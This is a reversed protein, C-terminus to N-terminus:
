SKIGDAVREDVRNAFEVIAAVVPRLSPKVRDVAARRLREAELGSEVAAIQAAEPVGSDVNIPQAYGAEVAKVRDMDAKIQDLFDLHETSEVRRLAPSVMGFVAGADTLTGNLNVKFPVRLEDASYSALGNHEIAPWGANATMRTFLCPTRVGEQARDAPNPLSISVFDRPGQGTGIVQNYRTIWEQSAPVLKMLVSSNEVFQGYDGFKTTPVVPTRGTLGGEPTFWLRAQQVSSMPKNLALEADFAKTYRDKIKDGEIADIYAQRNARILAKADITIPADIFGHWKGGRSIVTQIRHNAGGSRLGLGVAGASLGGLHNFYQPHLPDGSSEFSVDNTHRIAVGDIAKSIVGVLFTYPANALFGPEHHQATHLTWCTDLAQAGYAGSALGTPNSVLKAKPSTASAYLRTAVALCGTKRANYAVVASDGFLMLGNISDTITGDRFVLTGGCAVAAAESAVRKFVFDPLNAHRYLTSTGQVQTFGHALMDSHNPIGNKAM